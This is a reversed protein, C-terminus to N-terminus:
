RLLFCGTYAIFNPGYYYELNNEKCVELVLMGYGEMPSIIEDPFRCPADPYTCTKCRTCGGAGLALVSVGAERLKRYMVAFHEKHQEVAEMMGEGDMEDELEGVTQVLIGARCANVRAQCEELEGCAPPCSWNKGYAGCTNKACMERVEPLMKLTEMKLPVTHTFGCEEALKTLEEINM